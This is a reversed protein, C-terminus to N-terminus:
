AEGEWKLYLNELLNVSYSIDYGAECIQENNNRRVHKDMMDIICAAWKEAGQKLSLREVDNTIIAEDVIIDSALCPLGAAQAEILVNGLGESISPFIFGDMMNMLQPVDDRIGLFHVKRDLGYTAVKEKIVEEMEGRGVLVFEIDPAIESIIKFIDILFAHNKLPDFRGVHGIVRKGILGLEQKMRAQVEPNYSYKRIDIGNKLIMFRESDVIRHGYRDVGAQYSCGFYFDAIWRNDFTMTRFVLNYLTIKDWSLRHSHLVVFRNCKKAVRAYISASSGIHGHIIRWEPHMSILKRCSERYKWYNYIKYSPIRFIRGGLRKIEEDYDGIKDTHVLFDFQFRRRNLCRYINMILTEAGARDMIGIVHLIRIQSGM